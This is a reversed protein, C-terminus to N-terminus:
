FHVKLALQIQRALYTSQIQGLAALAVLILSGALRKRSM